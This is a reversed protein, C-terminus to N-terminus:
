LTESGEPALLSPRDGASLRQRSGLVPFDEAAFGSSGLDARAALLFSREADRCAQVINDPISGAAHSARAEALRTLTRVLDISEAITKPSQAVLAVESRLALTRAGSQGGDAHRSRSIPSGTIIRVEAGMSVARWERAATLFRAYVERRESERIRARERDWTASQQRSTLVAGIVVGLLTGVTGILAVLVDVSV